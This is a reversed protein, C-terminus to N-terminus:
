GVGLAISMGNDICPSSTSLSLNGSSSFLPDGSSNLYDKFITTTEVGSWMVTNRINDGHNKWYFNNDTKTTFYFGSDCADVVNNIFIWTNDTTGNVAYGCSLFTNNMVLGLNDATTNIAQYCNNFSSFLIQDSASCKIAISTTHVCDHFYCFIIRCTSGISVGCNFFASFECNIASCYNGLNLVYRGANTTNDQDFKCNEFLCNTGAGVVNAASGQFYINRVLYYDGLTISFTVCDFFPRDGASTAWDSYTINGSVNTTNGKVGIISIPALAGADRASCDYSSDLTYTGSAVFYVYGANGSSEIHSEFDAESFANTWDLGTRTGAGSPTVHFYGSIAM